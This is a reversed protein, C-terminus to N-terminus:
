AAKVTTSERGQGGSTVVRMHMIGAVSVVASNSSIEMVFVPGSGRLM